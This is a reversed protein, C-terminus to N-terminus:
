QGHRAIGKSTFFVIRNNQKLAIWKFKEILIIRSWNSIRFWLIGQYYKTPPWITLRLSRNSSNSDFIFISQKNNNVSIAFFLHFIVSGADLLVWFTHSMIQRNVIPEQVSNSESMKVCKTRKSIVFTNMFVIYYKM